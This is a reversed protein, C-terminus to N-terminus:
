RSDVGADMAPKTQLCARGIESELILVVARAPSYKEHSGQELARERGVILRHLSM